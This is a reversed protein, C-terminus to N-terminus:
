NLNINLFRESKVIVYKTDSYFNFVFDSSICNSIFCYGDFHSWKESVIKWIIVYVTRIYLRTFSLKDSENIVEEENFM